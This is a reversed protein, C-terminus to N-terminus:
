RGDSRCNQAAREAGDESGHDHDRPASIASGAGRDPSPQRSRNKGRRASASALYDADGSYITRLTHSGTSLSNVSLSAIGASLPVPSGIPTKGDLLTVSGGPVGTEPAIAQVTVQLLVTQGAVCVAPTVVLVTQTKAKNVTQIVNTGSTAFNSDGNYVAQIIHSGATSFAISFTARRSADLAASGLSTSGALFTVTGTPTGVGPAVASVTVTFVVPQGVVTPNASTTAAVTTAARNVVGTLAASTSAAFASTGVFSATLSHSGAGLAVSLTAQGTANVPSSGLTRGGDQFTVTGAPTGAAAAVTATLTVPQGSVAPNVDAALSTTTRTAQTGGLAFRMIGSSGAIWL